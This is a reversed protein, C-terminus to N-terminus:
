QHRWETWPRWNLHAWKPAWKRPRIGWGSCCPCVRIYNDGGIGNCCTCTKFFIATILKRKM